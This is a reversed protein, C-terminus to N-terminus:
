VGRGAAAEGRASMLQRVVRRTLVEVQRAAPLWEEAGHRDLEVATGSVSGTAGAEGDSIPAPELHASGIRLLRRAKGDADRDAMGRTRSEGGPVGGRSGRDGRSLAPSLEAGIMVVKSIEVRKKMLALPSAAVEVRDLTLVSGAPAGPPDPIRVSTLVLPGLPAIQANEISAAGRGAEALADTIARRAAGAVGVLAYYGAAILGAPGLILPNALGHDGSVHLALGVNILDTM